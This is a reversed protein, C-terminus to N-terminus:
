NRGPKGDGVAGYVFGKAVGGLFAGANKSYNAWGAAWGGGVPFSQQGAGGGEGEVEDTSIGSTGASQASGTAAGAANGSPGAAAPANM